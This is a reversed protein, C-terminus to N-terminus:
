GRRTRRIPRLGKAVISIAGAHGTYAGIEKWGNSTLIAKFLSQSPSLFALTLFDGSNAAAYKVLATKVARTAVVKTVKADIMVNAITDVIDVNEPLSHLTAASCCGPMESSDFNEFNVLARNVVEELSMKEEM